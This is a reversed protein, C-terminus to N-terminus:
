EILQTRCENLEQKCMSLEKETIFVTTIMTIYATTYIIITLSIVLTILLKKTEKKLSYLLVLIGSFTFIIFSGVFLYFIFVSIEPEIKTSPPPNFLFDLIQNKFILYNSYIIYLSVLYPLLIFISLVRSIQSKFM